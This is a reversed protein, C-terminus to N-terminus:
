PPICNEAQGDNQGETMMKVDKSQLKLLTVGIKILNAGCRLLWVICTQYSFLSQLTLIALTIGSQLKLQLINVM